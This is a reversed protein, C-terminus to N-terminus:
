KGDNAEPADWASATIVVTEIRSIEIRGCIEILASECIKTIAYHQKQAEGLTAAPLNVTSPRDLMERLALADVVVFRRGERKRSKKEIPETSKAKAM